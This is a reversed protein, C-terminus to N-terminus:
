RVCLVWLLCGDMGGAVNSGAIGALSRGYVRTKSREAVPVPLQELIKQLIQRTKRLRNLYMENHCRSIALFFLDRIDNGFWFKCDRWYEAVLKIKKQKHVQKNSHTLGDTAWIIYCLSPIILLCYVTFSTFAAPPSMIQPVTKVLRSFRLLIVLIRLWSQRAAIASLDSGSVERICVPFEVLQVTTKSPLTPVASNWCSLSVVHLTVNIRMRSVLTPTPFCYIYAHARANVSTAKSIRCEVRMRWVTNDNTAERGRGYKQVNDWWRYSKRFFTVSCSIHAM